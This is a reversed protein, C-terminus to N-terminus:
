EHDEELHSYRFEEGSNIHPDREQSLPYIAVGTVRVHDDANKEKVNSLSHKLVNKNSKQIRKSTPGSIGSV